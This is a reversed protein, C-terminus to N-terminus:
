NDDEDETGLERLAAFASRPVVQKELNPASKSRVKATAPVEEKIWVNHGREKQHCTSPGWTKGKVGDAPMAIAHLRPYGQPSNPGSANRNLHDGSLSGKVTLKHQFDSPFSISPGSEKKLLKQLLNLKSKGKRKNPTPTQNQQFMIISLERKLLDYERLQLEQEKEKLQQAQSRQQLEAKLVEEERCRLEKEKMRLKLLVEEIEIKWVDQMTHFSEHPTELFASHIIDDLATLINEFSPRVHPDESWCAEMLERFPQPCTSPIPLTLKNVGVGYAVTFPDIGKYPTEGTLLEWLVVGYSWVDSSKSYMSKKIVEPAMWAYTGAASMRTTKYVERALGFDTIKLTKFQLDDNEIPELLLVNSSKLDRHILSIPARNHLYDMGRAIQVAWDLLVDPRVKRGNLIRNLSGGRCYEMVLCLNPLHLCVGLLKVINEHELLWFLNAEQKVNEITVTIDEDPDQRAAKVAVELGRWFGRYVKGFGGVGIVEEMTLESFPIETIYINDHSIFNAPFIGVKDGIKGTWWGEDGSIKADKSLVEVIEGKRLSLEDEGQAEYDYFVTWLSAHDYSRLSDYERLRRYEDGFHTPSDYNSNRSPSNPARYAPNITGYLSKLPPDM